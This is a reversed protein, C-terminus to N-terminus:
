SWPDMGHHKSTSVQLLLASIVIDGMWVRGGFRTQGNFHLRVAYYAAVIASAVFLYLVVSKRLKVEEQPERPAGGQEICVVSRSQREQETELIMVASVQFSKAMAELGPAMTRDDPLARAAPPDRRVQEIHDEEKLWRWVAVGRTEEDV